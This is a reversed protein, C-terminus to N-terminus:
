PGRSLPEAVFVKGGGVNFLRDNLSDFMYVRDRDHFFFLAFSPERDELLHSDSVNFFNLRTTRGDAGMEVMGRGQIFSNGRISYAFVCGGGEPLPHLDLDPAPTSPDDFAARALAYEKSDDKLGRPCPHETLERLRNVSVVRPRDIRDLEAKVFHAAYGVGAAVLLLIINTYRKM